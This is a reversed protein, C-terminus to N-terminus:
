KCVKSIVPGQKYFGRKKLQEFNMSAVRLECEGSFPTKRYHALYETIDNRSEVIREVKIIPEACAPCVMMFDVTDQYTLDTAEIYDAMLLSYGFKM